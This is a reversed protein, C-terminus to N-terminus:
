HNVALWPGCATFTKDVCSRAEGNGHVIAFFGAEYGYPGKQAACEAPQGEFAPTAPDDRYETSGFHDCSMLDNQNNVCQRVVGAARFQFVPCGKGFEIECVVKAPDGDIAVQCSSRGDTWGRDACYKASGNVLTTHDLGQGYYKTNAALFTGPYDSLKWPCGVVPPPTVCDPLKQWDQGPPQVWCGCTQGPACVPSPPPPVPPQPPPPPTPCGALLPLAAALSLILRKM